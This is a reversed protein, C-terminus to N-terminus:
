KPLLHSQKTILWSIIPLKNNNISWFNDNKEIINAIALRNSLARSITSDSYPLSKQFDKFRAKGGKAILILIIDRASFWVRGSKGTISDIILAFEEVL